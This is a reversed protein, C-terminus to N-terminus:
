PRQYACSLHVNNNNNNPWRPMIEAILWHVSWFESMVVYIRLYLVFMCVCVDSIFKFSNTGKTNNKKFVSFFSCIMIYTQSMSTSDVMGGSKQKNTQQKQQTKKKKKEGDCWYWFAVFRAFYHWSKENICIICIIQNPQNLSNLASNDGFHYQCPGFDRSM